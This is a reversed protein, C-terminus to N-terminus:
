ATSWRRRQRRRPRSKRRSPHNRSGKFGASGSSEWVLANGTTDTITIITNNFSAAIRVVGRALHKIKKKKAM